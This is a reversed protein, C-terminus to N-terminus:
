GGATVYPVREAGLREVAAEFMSDSALVERRESPAFRLITWPGTWREPTWGSRIRRRLARLETQCSWRLDLALALPPDPVSTGTPAQDWHCGRQGKLREIETTHLGRNWMSAPIMAPTGSGAPSTAFMNPMTHAVVPASVGGIHSAPSRSARVGPSRLDNARRANAVPCACQRGDPLVQVAYCGRRAHRSNLTSMNRPLM